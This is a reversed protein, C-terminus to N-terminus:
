EQRGRYYDGRNINTDQVNGHAPRYEHACIEDALKRWESAKSTAEAGSVDAGEPVVPQFTDTEYLIAAAYYLTALKIHEPVTSTYYRYTMRIRRHGRTPEQDGFYVIGRTYDVWYDAGRTATYGTTTSVFDTYTDDTVHEYVEMKDTGGSFTTLTDHRLKLMGTGDYDYYENSVTKSQWSHNTKMEVIGEAKNIIAEANTSTPISTAGFGGAPWRLFASLEAHTIYTVAM